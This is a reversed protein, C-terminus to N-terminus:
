FGLLFGKAVRMLSYYALLVIGQDMEGRKEFPEPHLAQEGGLDQVAVASGQCRQASAAWWLVCSWCSRRGDAAAVANVVDEDRTQRVGHQPDSVVTAYKEPDQPDFTATSCRESAAHRAVKPRSASEKMAELYIDPRM